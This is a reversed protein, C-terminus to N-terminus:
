IEIYEQDKRTMTGYGTIKDDAFNGYQDGNRWVTKWPGAKQWFLSGDYKKTKTM